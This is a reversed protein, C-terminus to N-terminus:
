RPAQRERRGVEASMCVLQQDAVEAAARDHREIGVALELAQELAPMFPRNHDVAEPPQRKAVAAAGSSGAREVEAGTRIAFAVTQEAGQVGRWLVLGISIAVVVAVVIPVRAVAAVVLM